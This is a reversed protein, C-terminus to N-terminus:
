SNVSVADQLDVILHDLIEVKSWTEWDGRLCQDEFEFLGEVDIGRTLEKWKLQCIAVLLKRYETLYELTHAAESQVLNIGQGLALANM